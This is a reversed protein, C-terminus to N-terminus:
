NLISNVYKDVTCILTEMIEAYAATDENEVIAQLAIDALLCIEPVDKYSNKYKECELYSAARQKKDLLELMLNWDGSKMATRIEALGEIAREEKKM